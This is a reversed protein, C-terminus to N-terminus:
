LKHGCGVDESDVGAGAFFHYSGKRSPHFGFRSRRHSSAYPLNFVVNWLSDRMADRKAKVKAFTPRARGAAPRARFLVNLNLKLEPQLLTQSGNSYTYEPLQSRMLREKEVNVLTM